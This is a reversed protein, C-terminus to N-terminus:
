LKINFKLKKNLDNITKQLDKFSKDVKGLDDGNINLTIPKRCGPCTVTSEKRFQELTVQFEKKCEPCQIPIPKKIEDLIGVIIV